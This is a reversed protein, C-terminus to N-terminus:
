TSIQASRGSRIHETAEAPVLRILRSAHAANVLLKEPAVSGHNALLRPTTPLLAALPRDFFLNYLNSFHDCSIRM